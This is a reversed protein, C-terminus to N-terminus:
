DQVNKADDGKRVATMAAHICSKVWYNIPSKYVIREQEFEGIADTKSHKLVIGDALLTLLRSGFNRVDPEHRKFIEIHLDDYTILGSGVAKVSDAQFSIDMEHLYGSKIM